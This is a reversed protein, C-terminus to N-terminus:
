ERLCPATGLTDKMRQLVPQGLLQANAPIAWPPYPWENQTIDLRGAWLAAKGDLRVLVAASEDRNRTDVEALDKAHLLLTLDAVFNRTM